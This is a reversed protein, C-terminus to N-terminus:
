HGQHSAVLAVGGICLAAPAVATVGAVLGGVVAVVGSAVFAVAYMACVAGVGATILALVLKVIDEM